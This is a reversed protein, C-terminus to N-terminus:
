LKIFLRYTLLKCATKNIYREMEEKGGTGSRSGVYMIWVSDM